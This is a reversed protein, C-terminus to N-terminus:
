RKETTQKEFRVVSILPYERRAVASASLRYSGLACASSGRLNSLATRLRQWASRNTPPSTESKPCRGIHCKSRSGGESEARWRCPRIEVAHLKRRLDAEETAFHEQVESLRQQRLVEALPKGDLTINTFDGM